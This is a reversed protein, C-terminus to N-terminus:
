EVRWLVRFKLDGPSNKAIHHGRMLSQLETIAEDMWEERQLEGSQSLHEVFDTFEEVGMPHISIRRNLCPDYFGRPSLRADKNSWTTQNRDAIGNRM